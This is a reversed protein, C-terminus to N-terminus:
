PVCLKLSISVFLFSYHKSINKRFIAKLYLSALPISTIVYNSFISLNNTIHVYTLKEVTLYFYKHYFFLIRLFTQAAIIAIWYRFDYTSRRIRGNNDTKDLVCSYSSRKVNFAWSHVSESSSSTVRHDNAAEANYAKVTM